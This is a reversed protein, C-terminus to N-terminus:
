PTLRLSHVENDLTVRVFYVSRGLHHLVPDLDIRHEGSTIECPTSTYVVRGDVAAIHYFMQAQTNTRIVMTTGEIAVHHAEFGPSTTSVSSLLTDLTEVLM